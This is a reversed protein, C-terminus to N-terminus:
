TKVLECGSEELGGGGRGDTENLLNKGSWASPSCLLLFIWVYGM